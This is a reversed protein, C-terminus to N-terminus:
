HHHGTFHYLWMLTIIVGVALLIISQTRRKTNNLNVAGLVIGVPSLIITSIVLAIMESIKWKRKM